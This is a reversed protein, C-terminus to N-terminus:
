WYLMYKILSKDIHEKFKAIHQFNRKILISILWCPIEITGWLSCAFFNFCDKLKHYLGQREKM